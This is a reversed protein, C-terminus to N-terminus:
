PDDFCTHFRTNATIRSNRSLLLSFGIQASHCAKHHKCASRSRCFASANRRSWASRCVSARM